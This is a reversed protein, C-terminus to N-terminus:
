MGVSCQQVELRRREDPVYSPIPVENFALRMATQASHRRAVKEWSVGHTNLLRTMDAVRVVAIGDVSCKALARVFEYGGLNATMDFVDTMSMYDTTSLIGRVISGQHFTSRWQRNVQRLAGLSKLDLFPAICELLDLGFEAPVTRSRRPALTFKVETGDTQLRELTRTAILKRRNVRAATLTAPETNKCPKPPKIKHQLLLAEMAAMRDKLLSMNIQHSLM